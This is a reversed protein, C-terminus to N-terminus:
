LPCEERCGKQPLKGGRYPITWLDAAENVLRENAFPKSLMSMFGRPLLTEDYPRSVLEAETQSIFNITLRFEARQFIRTIHQTKSPAICTSTGLSCAAHLSSLHFTKSIIRSNHREHSLSLSRCAPGALVLGLQGFVSTSMRAMKPEHGRLLDSREGMGHIM